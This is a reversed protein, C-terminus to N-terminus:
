FSIFQKGNLTILVDHDGSMFGKLKPFQSNEM